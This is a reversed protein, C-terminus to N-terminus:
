NNGHDEERIMTQLVRKFEFIESYIHYFGQVGEKHEYYVLFYLLQDLHEIIEQPSSVDSFFIELSSYDYAQNCPKSDITEM